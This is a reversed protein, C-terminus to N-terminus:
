GMLPGYMGLTLSRTLGHVGSGLKLRNSYIARWSFGARVGTRALPQGRGPRGRAAGPTQSWLSTGPGRPRSGPRPRPSRSGPCRRRSWRRLPWRACPRRARSSRARSGRRGPTRRCPRRGARSRGRRAKSFDELRDVATRAPGRWYALLSGFRTGRRSRRRSRRARGSAGEEAVRDVAAIDDEGRVVASTVQALTGSEPIGPARGPSPAKAALPVQRTTRPVEFAQNPVPPPEEARTKREVSRPRVQVTAGVGIRAPLGEERPDEREREPLASCPRRRRHPNCAGRRGPRWGRRSRRRPDSRSEPRLLDGM